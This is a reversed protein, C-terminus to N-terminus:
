AKSEDAFTLGLRCAAAGHASLAVVASRALARKRHPGYKLRYGHTFPVVTLWMDGCTGLAVLVDPACEHQTRPASAVVGRVVSRGERVVFEAAKLSVAVVHAVVCGSRLRLSYFEDGANRYADVVTGDLTDAPEPTVTM